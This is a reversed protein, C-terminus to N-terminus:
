REAVALAGAEATTDDQALSLLRGDEPNHWPNFKCEIEDDKQISPLRGTRLWIPFACRWEDESLEIM